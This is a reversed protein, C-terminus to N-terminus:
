LYKLTITAEGDLNTDDTIALTTTDQIAASVVLPFEASTVAVPDTTGTTALSIMGANQMKVAGTTSKSWSVTAVDSSILDAAATNAKVGTPDVYVAWAGINVAGAKGLGATLTAGTAEGGASDANKVTIGSALTDAHNDTLTWAVKTATSCTINLSVNKKGLQNTATSSLDGLYIRGYDAVGVQDLAPTCAANTLLGKVKLLTTDAAHANSMLTALSLASILFVKKM